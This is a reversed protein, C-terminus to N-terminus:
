AMLASVNNSLCAALPSSRLQTPTRQAEISLSGMHPLKGSAEDMAVKVSLLLRSLTAVAGPNNPKNANPELPKLKAGNNPSTNAACISPSVAVSSGGSKNRAISGRRAGSCTM